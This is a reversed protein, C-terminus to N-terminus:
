DAPRMGVIRWGENTRQMSVDYTHSEETRQSPTLGDMNFDWRAEQRWELVEARLVVTREVTTQVYELSTIRYGSETIITGRSARAEELMDIRDDVLEGALTTDSVTAMLSKETDRRLAEAANPALIPQAYQDAPWDVEYSRFFHQLTESIDVLDQDSPKDYTRVVQYLAVSLVVAVFTIMTVVVIARKTVLPNM